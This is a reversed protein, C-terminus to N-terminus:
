YGGGFLEEQTRKILLKLRDHAEQQQELTVFGVLSESYEPSNFCRKSKPINYPVTSNIESSKYKKNSM